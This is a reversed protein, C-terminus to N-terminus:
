DSCQVCDVDLHPAVQEEYQYLFSRITQKREWDGQGRPVADRVGKQIRPYTSGSGTQMNVMAFVDTPRVPFPLGFLGAKLSTVIGVSSNLIGVTLRLFYCNDKCVTLSV